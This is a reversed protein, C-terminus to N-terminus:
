PTSRGKGLQMSTIDRDGSEGGERKDSGFCIIEYPTNVGPSRYEYPHNWPDTPVFSILGEPFDDSKAALVSLGEENTPYRDFTAYFTDLANVMKGIELKAINQKSKILYSRVNVTVVGSLLALIVLVVM